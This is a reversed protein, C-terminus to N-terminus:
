TQRGDDVPGFNREVRVPSGEVHVVGGAFEHGVGVHGIPEGDSSRRM